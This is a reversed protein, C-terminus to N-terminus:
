REAAEVWLTIVKMVVVKMMMVKMVVVKMVMVMVKVQSLKEIVSRRSSPTGGLSVAVEEGHVGRQTGRGRFKDGICGAM